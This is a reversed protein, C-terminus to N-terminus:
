FRVPRCEKIPHSLEPHSSLGANVSENIPVENPSNGRFSSSCTTEALNAAVSKAPQRQPSFQETLSGEAKLIPIFTVPRSYRSQNLMRNPLALRTNSAKLNPLSIIGTQCSPSAVPTRLIQDLESNLKVSVMAMNLHLHPNM